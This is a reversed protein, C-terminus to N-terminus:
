FIALKGTVMLGMLGMVIVTGLLLLSLVFRQGPTLGLFNRPPPGLDEVQYEYEYEEPEEFLAEGDSLQRLEDFM